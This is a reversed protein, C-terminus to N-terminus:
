KFDLPRTSIDSIYDKEYPVYNKGDIILTNELIEREVGLNRNIARESSFKDGYRARLKEINTDLVTGINVNYSNSYSIFLCMIEQSYQIFLDENITKNYFLKKKLFDLLKLSNQTIKLLIEFPLLSNEDPINTDVTLNYQRAIIAFYWICDAIEEGKNTYDTSESLENDFLEDIETLIGIVAHLLLEDKKTCNFETSLTKESLIKYEEFNM